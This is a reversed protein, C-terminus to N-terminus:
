VVSKRDEKPVKWQSVALKKQKDEDLNELKDLGLKDTTQIEKRSKLKNRSRLRQAYRSVTREGLKMLQAIEFDKKGLKYLEIFLKENIKKM